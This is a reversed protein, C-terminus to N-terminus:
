LHHHLQTDRYGPHFQHFILQHGTLTNLNRFILFLYFLTCSCGREPIPNLALLIQMALFHNIRYIPLGNKKAFRYGASDPQPIRDQHM